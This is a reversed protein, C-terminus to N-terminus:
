TIEVAEAFGPEACKWSERPFAGFRDGIIKWRLDHVRM